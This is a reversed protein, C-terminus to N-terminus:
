LLLVLSLKMILLNCSSGWINQNFQDLTHGPYSSYKFSRLSEQRCGLRFVVANPSVCPLVWTKSDALRPSFIGPRGSNQLGPWNCLTEMLVIPYYYRNQQIALLIVFYHHTHIVWRLIQSIVSVLLKEGHPQHICNQHRKKFYFKMIRHYSRLLFSCCASQKPGLLPNFMEVGDGVRHGLRGERKKELRSVISQIQCNIIRSSEWDMKNFHTSTIKFAM